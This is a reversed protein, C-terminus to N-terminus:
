GDRPRLTTLLLLMHLVKGHHEPAASRGVPIALSSPPCSRKGWRRGMVPFAVCIVEGDVTMTNDVGGNHVHIGANLVEVDYPATWSSEVSSHSSGAPTAPLDFM